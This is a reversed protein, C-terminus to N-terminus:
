GTKRILKLAEKLRFRKIFENPSNGTLSTVKRYLQARSVGLQRAFSDTNLEAYNWKTELIDMIENLFKEESLKLSKFPKKSEYTVFKKRDLIESVTSSFLVEENRAIYALRETM